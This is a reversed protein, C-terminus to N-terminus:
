RYHNSLEIIRISSCTKSDDSPNIEFELRWKDQLRISYRNSFGTLKEFNLSPTQWLDYIDKAAELSQVRMFFKRLISRDIRYKSCKGQEYLELLHRNGFEINM